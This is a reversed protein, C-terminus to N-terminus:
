RQAHARPGPPQLRLPRLDSGLPHHSLPGAHRSRPRSGRRLAPDSQRARRGAGGGDPAGDAGPTTRRSHGLVEVPENRARRVRPSRDTGGPAAGVDRGLHRPARRGRRVPPPLVRRDRRVLRVGCPRADAVRHPGRRHHPEWCPAGQRAPARRLRETHVRWGVDRLHQPVSALLPRHPGHPVRKNSCHKGQLVCRPVVGRVHVASGRGGLVFFVRPM